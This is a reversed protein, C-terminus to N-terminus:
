PLVIQNTVRTVGTVKRTHMLVLDAEAASAVPGRLVVVGNNTIVKLNQANVSLSADGTLEKRIMRTIEIDAASSGQDFPTMTRGDKDVENQASNDAKEAVFVSGAKASTSAARDNGPTVMSEQSSTQGPTRNVSMGSSGMTGSSMPADRSPVGYAPDGSVPSPNAQGQNAM